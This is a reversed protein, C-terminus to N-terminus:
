NNLCNLWVIEIQQKESESLLPPIKPKSKKEIYELLCSKIMQHHITNENPFNLLFEKAFQMKNPQEHFHLIKYIKVETPIDGFSTWGIVHIKSDYLTRESLQNLQELLQGAQFYKKGWPDCVVAAKGWTKPQTIDSLPDRGIVLFGHDGNVLCLKEIRRLNKENKLYLYAVAVQEGCNGAQHKKAIEAIIKYVKDFNHHPELEGKFALEMEQRMLDVRRIADFSIGQLDEGYNIPEYPLVESTYRLAEHAYMLNVKLKDQWNKESNHHIDEIMRNTLSLVQSSQNTDHLRIINLIEKSIPHKRRRFRNYTSLGCSTLGFFFQRNQCFM